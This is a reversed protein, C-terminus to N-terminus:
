KEKEGEKKDFKIIDEVDAKKKEKTKFYAKEAEKENYNRCEQPIIHRENPDSGLGIDNCIPANIEIAYISGMLVSISLVIKKM